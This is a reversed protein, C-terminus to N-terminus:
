AAHRLPAFWDTTWMEQPYIQQYGILMIVLHDKHLLTERKPQKKIKVSSCTNDAGQVPPPGGAPKHLAIKPLRISQM